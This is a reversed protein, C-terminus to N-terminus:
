PNTNIKLEGYRSTYSGGNRVAIISLQQATFEADRYNDFIFEAQTYKFEKGDAAAIREGLAESGYITYYKGGYPVGDSVNASTGVVAVEVDINGSATPIHIVTGATLSSDTEETNFLVM